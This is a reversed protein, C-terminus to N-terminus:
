DIVHGNKDSKIDIQDCLISRILMQEIFVKKWHVPILRQFYIHKGDNKTLKLMLRSQNVNAFDTFLMPGIVDVESFLSPSRM